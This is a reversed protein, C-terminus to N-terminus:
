PGAEAVEHARTRTASSARQWADLAVDVGPTTSAATQDVYAAISLSADNGLLEKRSVVEAFGDYSTWTECVRAIREINEKTLFSQGHERRYEDVANIFLVKDKREAPKDTRCFLVCAEMPSNYFLGPGLGLVCDILDSEILRKRMKREEDRFLVGHPFLVACRGSGEKM